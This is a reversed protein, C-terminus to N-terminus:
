VEALARKYAGCDHRLPCRIEYAVAECRGSNLDLTDEPFITRMFARGQYLGCLMKVPKLEVAAYLFEFVGDHLQMVNKYMELIFQGLDEVVLANPGPALGSHFYRVKDEESDYSCDGLEGHTFETRFQHLKPFWTIQARSLFQSLEDPFGEGYSKAKAKSFLKSTSKKQVGPIGRYVCFIVDRIGDLSAYLENIASETIASIKRSYRNHSYSQERLDAKDIAFGYTLDEAVEILLKFKEIHQHAASVGRQYFKSRTQDHIIFRNFKYTSTWNVPYYHRVFGEPLKKESVNSM